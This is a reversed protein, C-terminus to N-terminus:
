HRQPPITSAPSKFDEIRIPTLTRTGGDAGFKKLGKGLKIKSGLTEWKPTNKHFIKQGSKKNLM